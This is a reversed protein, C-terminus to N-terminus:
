IELITASDEVLKFAVFQARHESMSDRPLYSPSTTAFHSHINEIWKNVLWSIKCILLSRFFIELCAM